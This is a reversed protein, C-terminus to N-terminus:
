GPPQRRTSPRPRRAPGPGGRREGADTADRGLGADIEAAGARGRSVLRHLLTWRLETDITLGDLTTTGDLLSALFNLHGDSVAVGALAQTFALQADSGPADAALLEHLRDGMHGQGEDRWSPDAFRRVAQSAPRLLTQPVSIDAVSSVGLMVLRVYDRAAM